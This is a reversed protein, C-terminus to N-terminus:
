SPKVGDKNCVRRRLKKLRWVNESCRWYHQRGSIKRSGWQINSKSRKLYLRQVTLSALFSRNLFLFQKRLVIKSKLIDSPWPIKRVNANELPKNLDSMTILSGTFTAQYPRYIVSKYLKTTKAQFVTLGAVTKAKRIYSEEGSMDVVQEIGLHNKRLIRGIKKLKQKARRHTQCRAERDIKCLPVWIELLSNKWLLFVSVGDNTM